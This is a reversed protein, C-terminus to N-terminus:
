FDNHTQYWGENKTFVVIQDVEHMKYTGGSGKSDRVFM